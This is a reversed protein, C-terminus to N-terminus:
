ARAQKRYWKAREQAEEQSDYPGEVARWPNGRFGDNLKCIVYFGDGSDHIRFSGILHSKTAQHPTSM